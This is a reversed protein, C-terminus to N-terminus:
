DIKREVEVATGGSTKERVEINAGPTKIEIIKKEQAQECGIVSVWLGIEMVVVSLTSVEFWQPTQRQM